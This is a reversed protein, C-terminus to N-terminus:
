KCRASCLLHDSHTEKRATFYVLSVQVTESLLLFEDHTESRPQLSLLLLRGPFLDAAASPSELPLFPSRLQTALGMGM